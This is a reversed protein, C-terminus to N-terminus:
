AAHAGKNGRRARLLEVIIPVISLFVVLILILEINNKVFAFQGLWAGLLTVGAAWLVGGILSYTLYRKAPM